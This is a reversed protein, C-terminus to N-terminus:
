LERMSWEQVHSGHCDPVPPSVHRTHVGNRPYQSPNKRARSYDRTKHNPQPPNQGALTNCNDLNGNDDDHNDPGGAVPDLDCQDPLLVGDHDDGNDNNHNDPGNTASTLNHEGSSLVGDDDHDDDHNHDTNTNDPNNPTLTNHPKTQHPSPHKNHPNRSPLTDPPTHTKQLFLTYTRHSM